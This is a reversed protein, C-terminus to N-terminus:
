AYKKKFYQPLFEPDLKAFELEEENGKGLAGSCEAVRTKRVPKILIGRGSPILLLESGESIGFARRLRAPLTVQGKKRVQAFIEGM